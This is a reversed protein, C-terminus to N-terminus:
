IGNIAKELMENIPMDVYIKEKDDDIQRCETYQGFVEFLNSRVPVCKEYNFVVVNYRDTDIYSDKIESLEPTLSSEFAIGDYGLNKAYEAIYQTPIYDLTVDEFEIPKSFLYSLDSFLNIKAESMKRSMNHLTFDLLTIEEKVQLTAISVRSGLRPRVEVISTYPHNACYLYPIYKYNARMDSTKEFPPVFSNKSNYGWFNKESGLKSNKNVIRCRYLKYGPLLNREPNTHFENLIKLVKNDNPNRNNYKIEKIFTQLLRSKMKYEDNNM